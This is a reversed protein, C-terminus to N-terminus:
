ERLSALKEQWASPIFKHYAKEIMAVSTGTQMAVTLPDVNHLQLLESVRVHRFSYASAESPLRERPKPEKIHAAIAERTRRTWMHPRWAQEGDETILVSSPKYRHRERRM